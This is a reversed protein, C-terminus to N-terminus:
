SRGAGKGRGTKGKGNGPKLTKWPKKAGRDGKKKIPKDDEEISGDELAKM